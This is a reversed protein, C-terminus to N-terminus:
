DTMRRVCFVRISRLFTPRRLLVFDMPTLPLDCSASLPALRPPPKGALPPQTRVTTAEDGREGLPRLCRSKKPIEVIPPAGLRSALSNQHLAFLLPDHEFRALIGDERDRAPTTVTVAALSLRNSVAHISKDNSPKQSIVSRLRRSARAAEPIEGDDEDPM